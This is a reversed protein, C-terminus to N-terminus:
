RGEVIWGFVTGTDLFRAHGDLQRVVAAEPTPDLWDQLSPTLYNPNGNSASGLLSKVDLIRMSKGVPADIRLWPLIEKGTWTPMALSSIVPYSAWRPLADSQLPTPWTLPMAVEERPSVLPSLNGLALPGVTILATSVLLLSGVLWTLTKRPSCNGLFLGVYAAGVVGLLGIARPQLLPPYFQAALVVVAFGSVAAELIGVRYKRRLIRTSMFIATAYVIWGPLISLWVYTPSLRARAFAVDVDVRNPAFPTLFTLYQLIGAIFIWYIWPMAALAAIAPSFEHRRSLLGYMVIGLLAMSIVFASYLHTLILALMCLFVSFLSRTGLQQTLGLIVIGGFVFAVTMPQYLSGFGISQTWLLLGIAAFSGTHQNHGIRGLLVAAIASCVLTLALSLTVTLPAIQLGTMQNATTLLLHIVPFHQYSSDPIHGSELLGRTMEFIHTSADRVLFSEGGHLHLVARSVLLALLVSVITLRGKPAGYGLAVLIGCVIGAIWLAPIDNGIRLLALGLIVLTSLQIGQILPSAAAQPTYRNWALM